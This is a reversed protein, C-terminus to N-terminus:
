PVVMPNMTQAWSVGVLASVVALGALGTRIAGCLGSVTEGSRGGQRNSTTHQKERIGDHESGKREM